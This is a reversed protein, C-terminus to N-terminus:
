NESVTRLVMLTKALGRKVAPDNLQRLISFMSINDDIEQERMVTATSRMMHMVEPQTMEKVTQLILVVNEGLQRIDEQSFNTVIEDIIGMGGRLFDFYGKREMEDLRTMLVLFADQSLPSIERSLDALSELQDLMQDLNRTNRMLRKLVRLLDELQVYSEVEELQQVSLHYVENVVPTLDNRLEDWEQRRRQQLRAEEALFTVQSTLADVKQNLEVIAQDM